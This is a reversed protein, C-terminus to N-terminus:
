DNKNGEKRSPRFNGAELRKPFIKNALSMRLSDVDLSRESSTLSLRNAAENFGRLAGLLLEQRESNTLPEM